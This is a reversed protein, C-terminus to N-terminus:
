KENEKMEDDMKEMDMIEMDMSHGYGDKREATIKGKGLFSIMDGVNHEGMMDKMKKMNITMHSKMEEPKAMVPMDTKKMRATGAM